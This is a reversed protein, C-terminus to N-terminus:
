QLVVLKPNQAVPPKGVTHTPLRKRSKSNAPLQPAPPESIETLTDLGRQPTQQLLLRKGEDLWRKRM